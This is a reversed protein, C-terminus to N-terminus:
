YPSNRINYLQVIYYIRLFLILMSTISAIKIGQIMFSSFHVMTVVLFIITYGELISAYKRALSSNKEKCFDIAAKLILYEALLELIYTVLVLLANIFYYLIGDKSQLFYPEVLFLFGIASNALAFSYSMQWREKVDVQRLTYIGSAIVLWAICAPLIVLGGLSIHITVLIFGWFVKSYGQEM